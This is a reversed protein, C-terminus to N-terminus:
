GASYGGDALLVTGTIFSSADSALFVVAPAIEEVTSIREMPTDELVHRHTRPDLAPCDDTVTYGPALANVRVGQAAWEAALARTLHHVAAKSAAAAADFHPRGAIVGCLAGVNVIVGGGQALFHRGFSQCCSWLADLNLSMVRRWEQRPLQAAAGPASADAANVLVDLRGFRELAAALVDEVQQPDTIDARVFLVQGGEARVKAAEHEGEEADPGVLVVHAGALALALALGGGLGGPSTTVAAVRGTLDFRDFLRM